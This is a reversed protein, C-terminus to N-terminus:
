EQPPASPIIPDSCFVIEDLSLDNFQEEWSVLTATAIEAENDYPYRAQAEPLITNGLLSPATPENEHKAQIKRTLAQYAAYFLTFILAALLAVKVAPRELFPPSKAMPRIIPRPGFIIASFMHHHYSTNM